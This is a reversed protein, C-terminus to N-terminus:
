KKFNIYIFREKKNEIIKKLTMESTTLESNESCSKISFTYMDNEAKVKASEVYIPGRGGGSEGAIINLSPIYHMYEYELIYKNFDIKIGFREYVFNNIIDANYLEYVSLDIEINENNKYTKTIDFSESDLEADAYFFSFLVMETKTPFCNGDTTETCRLAVLTDYYLDFITQKDELSINGEIDTASLYNIDKYGMENTIQNGDDDYEIKNNDKLSNSNSNSNNNSNKTEKKNLNIIFFLVGILVIIILFVIFLTKVKNNNKINENEM